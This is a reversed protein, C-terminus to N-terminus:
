RGYFGTKIFTRGKKSSGGIELLKARGMGRISLIAGESVTKTCDRCEEHNLNVSGSEIIQAAKSRSLGFASGLVADLRLSAVTDTRVTLDDKRDPLKGLPIGSLSVKARGASKLEQKIFGGLEPLCLFVLPSEIIDGITDREIGLAMVAGLLDRHGVSEQIPVSVTFAAILDSRIYDGWDPNLFVARVREAGEYGGDFSLSVNNNKAFHISVHHAEAPTLFRSAACGNRVAKTALDEMHGIMLKKHEM